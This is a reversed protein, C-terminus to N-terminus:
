HSRGNIQRKRLEDLASAAETRESSDPPYNKEYVQQARRLLTRAEDLQGRQTLAEGLWLRTDATNPHEDNLQSLQISLAQRL